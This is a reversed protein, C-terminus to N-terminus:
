SPPDDACRAASETAPQMGDYLVGHRAGDPRSRLGTGEARGPVRAPATRGPRGTRWRSRRVADIAAAVAVGLLALRAVQLLYASLWVHKAIEFYGDGLVAAVALVVASGASVGALVAFPSWRSGRRVLGLAGAAVGLVAVASPAWPRSMGDLWGRLKEATAGQEGVHTGIVPALTEPNMPASPLYSLEAGNTAQMAVGTARALARPDRLLVRVATAHAGDPDAALVDAGPLGDTGFPYFATGAADLAGPPLGLDGASDPVETLVVTYVVNHANITAYHRQQWDLQSRMPAAALVVALGAVAPGALRNSRWRAGDGFTVATTACVIVGVLLLPAYGAKALAAVVSGGAVLLLGTIREVRDTRRTAALVGVGCLLAFAGILGAPEAFTSLFFRSFSTGTLALIPPALVLANSARRATTAWGAVAALAGAVVVYLRGLRLLSWATDSGTAAVRLAVLASSPMPDDCSGARDFALVVGGKWNAQGGPTAPVLGAGCFLRVGDGNDGAGVPEGAFLGTTATILL